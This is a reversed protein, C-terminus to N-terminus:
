RRRREFWWLAASCLLWALWWPWSPGRVATVGTVRATVSTGGNALGRTATRMEEGALSPADDSSRVFFAKMSKGDRLWYWGAVRPWLAACNREPLLLTTEGDPAVVQASSSAPCIAVREGVRSEAISTTLSEADTRALTAFARSWAAGYRGADGHLVWQWADLLPWVGIRGRGVGSWWGLPKDDTDRLLPVEDSSGSQLRHLHITPADGNEDRELTAAEGGSIPLGLGRLQERTTTSPQDDLRLLVGLGDTMAARLTARGSGDLEDLSRGDLVLLDLRQLTAADLTVADGLRIGGGLEIRTQLQVGADEAWRRLYKTEANPAAALLLVHPVRPTVVQIPVSAREVVAGSGDLLQLRFVALGAARTNSEFRFRGDRDPTVSAIKQGAPDQLAITAIGHAQGHISFDQGPALQRPWALQQLGKAPPSEVFALARRGVADRDRAELGDGFIQLRSADPHARLASALDPQREGQAALTAAAEPLVVVVDAERNAQALQAATSGSTLVALTGRDTGADIRPPLLAFYLLAACVPQAVLLLMLRLRPAPARRQWWLLRAIAVVAACAITIEIATEITM